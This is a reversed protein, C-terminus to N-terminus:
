RAQAERAEYAARSEPAPVAAGSELAAAAAPVILPLAHMVLRGLTYEVNIAAGIALLGLPVALDSRSWWASPAGDRRVRLVFGYAGLVLAVPFVNQFLGKMSFTLGLLRMAAGGYTLPQLQQANGPIDLLQRLALYGAFAGACAVLQASYHRLTDRPAALVRGGLLLALVLSVKENFAASLIVILAFAAPTRLAHYAAAILFMALPDVGHIGTYQAYLPTAFLGVASAARSAGLRDRAIRYVLVALGALALWSVFALAQTAREYDSDVGTAKTFRYVPLTRYFPLAVAVSLIRYAMPAGPRVGGDGALWLLYPAYDDRPTTQFVMSRYTEIYVPYTATLAVGTWLATAVLRGRLRPM